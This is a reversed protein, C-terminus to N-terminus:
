QGEGKAGALFMGGEVSKRQNRTCGYYGSKLGLLAHLIVGNVGWLSNDQRVAVSLDMRSYVPLLGDLLEAPSIGRPAGEVKGEAEKTKQKDSRRM